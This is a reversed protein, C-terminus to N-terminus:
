QVVGMLACLDVRLNERRCKMGTAYACTKQEDPWTPPRAMACAACPCLALPNSLHECHAPVGITDAHHCGREKM